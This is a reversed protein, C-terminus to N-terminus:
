TLGATASASPTASSPSGSVSPITTPKTSMTSPETRAVRRVVGGRGRLRAKASALDGRVALTAGLRRDRVLVRHSGGCGGSRVARRSRPGRVRERAAVPGPRRRRPSSSAPDDDTWDLRNMGRQPRQLTERVKGTEPMCLTSLTSNRLFVLEGGSRLLRSAEPIRSRRARPRPRDQSQAAARDGVAGAHPRPGRRAARGSTQALRRRLRARGRGM